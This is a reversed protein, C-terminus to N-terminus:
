AVTDKSREFQSCAPHTPFGLHARIGNLVEEVCIRQHGAVDNHGTGVPRSAGADVCKVPRAALFEPPM